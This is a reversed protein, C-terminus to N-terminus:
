PKGKSFIKLRWVAVAVMLFILLAVAAPRLAPVATPLEVPVPPGFTIYASGSLSGGDDDGFAGVVTDGEVSVSYGFYDDAATLEVEVQAFASVSAFVLLFALFRPSM